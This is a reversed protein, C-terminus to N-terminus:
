KEFEIKVDESVGIIEGDELTLPHITLGAVELFHLQVYTELVSEFDERSDKGEFLIDRYYRIMGPVNLGPSITFTKGDESVITESVKGLDFIVTSSASYGNKNKHITIM